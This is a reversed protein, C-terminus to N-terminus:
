GEPTVPGGEDVMRIEEDAPNMAPDTLDAPPTRTGLWRLYIAGGVILAVSVWQTGRLGLYTPATRAFDEILRFGGYWTATFAILWGDPRRTRGLIMVIPFLVIVNFFDYLATQHCVAGIQRCAAETAGPLEGGRYRFGLFFSTPSGIHDGIILDGIRGLILGLPFGPAAADLIQIFRLGHRRAYPYAAAIGGFVGGYFVIGGEWVKVIGLIDHPIYDGLHGAVYFLRAGVVVGIVAYMLMNWIHERAIGYIREARRALLSGGLAYGVAIGLGHPSVPGIKPVVRWGIAAFLPM